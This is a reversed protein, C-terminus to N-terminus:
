PHGDGEVVAIWHGVALWETRNCCRNSQLWTFVLIHDEDPSPWAMVNLLEVDSNIVVTAALTDDNLTIFSVIVWGYSYVPHAVTDILIELTLM